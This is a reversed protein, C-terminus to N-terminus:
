RGGLLAKKLNETPPAPGIWTALLLRAFAPDDIRGKSQQGFFMEVGGNSFVFRLSDNQAIGDLMAEFRAISASPLVCPAKCNDRFSERWAAIMDDRGVAHLFVMAVLKPRPSDLIAAADHSPADLYLGAVYVDVRFISYVRSGIGNLALRKGAAEVTDPLTVGAFTAAAAPEASSSTLALVVGAARLLGDFLPM